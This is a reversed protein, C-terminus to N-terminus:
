PAKGDTKAFGLALALGLAAHIAAGQVLRAAYPEFMGGVFAITAVGLGLRWGDPAAHRRRWLWALATLWFALHLAFAPLGYEASLALATNHAHPAGEPYENDAGPNVAPYAVRYAEKFADKGGWGVLPREAALHLSTRWIPWRTEKLQLTNTLRGPTAVVMQVALAGLGLAALGLGIIAWRRGRASLTAWVGCAAALIAGRGGAFFLGLVALGRATWLGLASTAYIRGGQSAAVLLLACALGFTLRHESFGSAMILRLGGPDIRLRGPGFGVLYQIAALATSALALVVLAKWMWARAMVTGMGLAVLPTALWTWAPGAPRWRAGDLGQWWGILGSAVIWAAYVCGLWFWPLRLLPARSLMVGLLAIAVGFSAWPPSAFMTLLAGASGLAMLRGGWRRPHHFPLQEVGDQWAAVTDPISMM